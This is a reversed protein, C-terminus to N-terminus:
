DDFVELLINMVRKMVENEGITIRLLGEISPHGSLIKTKINNCLLLEYAELARKNRLLIFNTETDIYSVPFEELLKRKWKNVNNINKILYNDEYLAKITEVVAISNIEQMPSLLELEKINNENSIIYGSRIGALGHAKSFSNVIFLNNYRKIMDKEYFVDTMFSYPIYVIDLIVKINFVDCKKLILNIQSNYKGTPNDPNAIYLLKHKRKIKYFIDNNFFADYSIKDVKVKSNYEYVELMGFTPEPRIIRDNKNLFSDFIMKIGEESGRTLLINDTNVQKNIALLERLLVTDPYEKYKGYAAENRSLDIINKDRKEKKTRSFVKINSKV